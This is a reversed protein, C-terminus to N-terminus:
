KWALSLKGGIRSVQVDLQRSTGPRFVGSIRASKTNDDWRVDVRVDHRGPSLTLRQQVLGKRLELSLLRRTVRGDFDEDVVRADDVWVQLNGHRLHHEFEIALQGPANGKAPVPVEPTARVPSSPRAPPPSPDPEDEPISAIAASTSSPVAAPRETAVDARPPSSAPEASSGSLPSAGVDTLPPASPLVAMSAPPAEPSEVGIRGWWARVEEAIRTKRGEAVARRWFQFDSPHLYFYVASVVGLVALLTLTTRGRRRRRPPRREDVPDLSLEPLDNGRASAVTGTGVPPPTWGGRHRPPRGALIDDVDEAMTKGDPYRDSPNKAMARAVVYEVDDPLGPVLEKLPRPHQYAVRSLIGPVNPAEFPPRGSLLLYAVSGLSFLDTRGDVPQGLAQEPSMYLPTGFFQGTSTLQGAELKAIGFDMIKPDGSAVLMINAPKIDRHVVGQAHAYGVAEALRGVIRLTERWDLPGEAAVEALTRGQLHELAIYLIDHEADRGVDHVIVIGAHSLRAAIRAEALFRKEYDERERKSAALPVQITKVAVRRGLAPDEAEYVVGMTGRGLEGRIEYRGIRSLPSPDKM